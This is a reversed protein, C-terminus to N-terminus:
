YITDECKASNILCFVNVKGDLETQPVGNITSLSSSQPFIDPVSHDLIKTLSSLQLIYSSLILM